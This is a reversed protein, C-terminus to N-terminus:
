IRVQKLYSLNTMINNANITYNQLHYSAINEMIQPLQFLKKDFVQMNIHEPLWFFFCLSSCFLCSYMFKYDELAAVVCKM